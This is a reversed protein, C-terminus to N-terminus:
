KIPKKTITPVGYKREEKAEGEKNRNQHKM